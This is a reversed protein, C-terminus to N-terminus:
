HERAGLEANHGPLEKWAQSQEAPRTQAIGSRGPWGGFISPPTPLDSASGPSMVTVAADVTLRNDALDIVHTVNRDPNVGLSRMIFIINFSIRSAPLRLNM